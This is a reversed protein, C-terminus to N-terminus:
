RSERARSGHDETTIRPSRHRRSEVVELVEAHHGALDAGGRAEVVVCMDPPVRADGGTESRDLDAGGVGLEVQATRACQCCQDMAQGADFGLTVLGVNRSPLRERFRTKLCGAVAQLRFQEVPSPLYHRSALKTGLTQLRRSRGGDLEPTLLLEPVDGDHELLTRSGVQLPADVALATHIPEERIEDGLGRPQVSCAPWTM